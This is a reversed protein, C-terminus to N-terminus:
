EVVTPSEQIVEVPPAPPQPVPLIQGDAYYFQDAVVDDACEVWCLPQAVEFTYSKVEAVRSGLLTDDYSYVLENPSILAYMM